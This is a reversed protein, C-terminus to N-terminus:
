TSFSFWSPSVIILIDSSSIGISGSEVLGQDSDNNRVVRLPVTLYIFQEGAAFLTGLNNTM